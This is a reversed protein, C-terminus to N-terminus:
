YRALLADIGSREAGLARDVPVHRMRPTGNVIEAFAIWGGDRKRLFGAIGCVSYPQEMTGTKLAVRDLWQASGARLFPFPADRPVVLTGYFAPFHRADHYEYALLTVLDSASLRNEPTLGSGSLILPRSTASLAAPSELRVLFDSLVRGADSLRVTPQESVQAALDLALVDAIYNNSFRLMRGLQERLALGETEAFVSAHGPLPAASVVVPGEITVGIERLMQGLLMGVGRAPDSMARYLRVPDGAPVNGGIHLRDGSADTVREVWLSERGGARVTKIIGDVPVPLRAVACGRVFAPAGPLTPRVLVCWNGFDVGVASLPANYATDSRRLADCRDKTECAVSGFPAPDVVLRGRVRQIGAGRLQAALAWLSHDDLSPDGAGQLVLDGELDAGSVPASSVLRTTFMKDASWTQLAAAATALKTLSAPTLRTDPRYQELIRGTQLDLASATAAAGDSALAALASWQAYAPSALALGTGLVAVVTRLATRM